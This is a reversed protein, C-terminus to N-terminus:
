KVETKKNNQDPDLINSLLAGDFRLNIEVFKSM